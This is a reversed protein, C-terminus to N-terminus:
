RIRLVEWAEADRFFSTVNILVTNLLDEFEGPQAELYARYAAFDEGGVAEMRLSIRRQLSTRKYGRFDLGRSEQIHRLLSKFNLIPFRKKSWRAM